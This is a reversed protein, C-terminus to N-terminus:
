TAIRGVKAFLNIQQLAFQASAIDLNIGVKLYQGQLAGPASITRLTIGGGFEGLSWEGVSFEAGGTASAVSIPVTHGTTKFDYKMSVNVTTNGAVFVFCTAKKIFKLYSNLEQGLDIWGSEYSFDYSTGDDSYGSHTMLEGVTGTLSGRLTQDKTQYCATQLDSTWEACRFSGDEMPQRTDFMVVKNSTPFIALLFDERPSYVLTLDNPDNEADSYALFQSQINKSVNTLTTGKYQIARALSSLGQPSIFYMDGKARAIGFQSLIGTGPITDSVYMVTPDIGLNSGAGDTWVVITNSGFIILDGGFEEIALVQDEGQPWVNDMDITGGGDAVAWRTEDLLACYRITHGDVDVVWLRGFAATGIGSTPATGSNVTVTTFNGTGTYVSPNGSTGTGLAICKDNFNVFKINGETISLTGEITTPAAITKFIDADTSMIIAATADAKIYEHIRMIVGAAPTTTASTWGKRTAIRGGSDFIVNKLVTAWAPDLLTSGAETNLGAKGPAPINLPTIPAGGHARPTPM